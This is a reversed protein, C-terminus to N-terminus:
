RIDSQDRAESFPRWERQVDHDAVGSRAQTCQCLMANSPHAM